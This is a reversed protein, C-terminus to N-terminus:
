DYIHVLCDKFNHIESVLSVKNSKLTENEIIEVMEEKTIFNNITYHKKFLKRGTNNNHLDMEKELPPNPSFDEHWDTVKKAWEMSKLLNKNWKLMEKVLLMSWMAHRFANASNNIHHIGPYLKDSIKISNITAKMTPFVM